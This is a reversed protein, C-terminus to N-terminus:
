LPISPTRRLAFRSAVLRVALTEPLCYTLVFTGIDGASNIGNFFEFTGIGAGSYLGPTTLEGVPSAPAQADFPLPDAQTYSVFEISNPDYIIDLGGGFMAFDTFDYTLTVSVQNINGDYEVQELGVSNASVSYMVASVTLVASAKVFSTFTM